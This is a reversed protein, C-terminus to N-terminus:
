PVGALVEEETEASDVKEVSPLRVGKGGCTDGTWALGVDDCESLDSLALSTVQGIEDASASVQPGFDPEITRVARPQVLEFM